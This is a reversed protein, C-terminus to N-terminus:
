KRWFIFYMYVLLSLFSGSLLGLVSTVEYNDLGISTAWNECTTIAGDIICPDPHFFNIAHFGLLFGIFGGLFIVLIFTIVLFINQAIKPLSSYFKHM